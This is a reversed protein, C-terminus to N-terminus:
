GVGVDDHEEAGGKDQSKSNGGRQGV